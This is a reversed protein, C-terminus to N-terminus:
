IAVGSEGGIKVKAKREERGEKSGCKWYAISRPRNEFESIVSRLV